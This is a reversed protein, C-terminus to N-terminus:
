DKGTAEGLAARVWDHQPGPNLAARFDALSGDWAAAGREHAQAAAMQRIEDDKCRILVLAADPGVDALLEHAREDDSGVHGHHKRAARVGGRTGRLMSFVGTFGIAAAASVRIVVASFDGAELVRSETMTLSGDENGSVVFATADGSRATTRFARGLSAVMREAARRNEFSALVVAEREPKASEGAM